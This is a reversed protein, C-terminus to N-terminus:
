RRVKLTAVALANEPNTTGNGDISEASHLWCTITEGKYIRTYYDGAISDTAPSYIWTAVGNGHADPQHINIYLM